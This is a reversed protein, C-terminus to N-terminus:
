RHFLVLEGNSSTVRSTYSEYGEENLRKQGIEKAENDDGAEFSEDLLAEGSKDFVNLVYNAM